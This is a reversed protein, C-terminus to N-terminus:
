TLRTIYIRCWFWWSTEIAGPPRSCTRRWHGSSPARRCTRHGYHQHCVTGHPQDTSQPVENYECIFTPIVLQDVLSAHSLGAPLQMCRLHVPVRRPWQQRRRSRVGVDSRTDTSDRPHQSDSVQRRVFVGSVNWWWWWDVMIIMMMMMMTMKM